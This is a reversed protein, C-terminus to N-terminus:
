WLPKEKEAGGVILIRFANWSKLWFNERIPTTRLFRLVRLPNFWFRRQAYEKL